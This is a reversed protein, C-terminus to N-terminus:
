VYGSYRIRSGKGELRGLRSDNEGENGYEFRLFIEYIELFIL